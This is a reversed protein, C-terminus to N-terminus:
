YIRIAKKSIEYVLSTGVLGIFILGVKFALPTIYKIGIAWPFLMCIEVDFIIFLTAISYFGVHTSRRNIGVPPLGCEYESTKAKYYNTKTLLFPLANAIVSLLVVILFFIAVPQYTSIVDRALM